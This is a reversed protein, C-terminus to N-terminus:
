THSTTQIEKGYGVQKHEVQKEKPSNTRKNIESLEKNLFSGQARMHKSKERSAARSQKSPLDPIFELRPPM